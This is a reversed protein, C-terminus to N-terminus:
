AVLKEVIILSFLVAMVLSATVKRLFVPQFPSLSGVKKVRLGTEFLSLGLLAPVCIFVSGAGLWAFLIFGAVSLTWLLFQLGGSIKNRSAIESQWLQKLEKPIGQSIFHLVLYGILFCPLAVFAAGVVIGVSIDFWDAFIAGAKAGNCLYFSTILLRMVFLSFTVALMLLGVKVGEWKELFFSWMFALLTIVGIGFLLWYGTPGAIDSFLMGVSSQPYQQYRHSVDVCDAYVSIPPLLSSLVIPALFWKLIKKSINRTVSVELSCDFWFFSPAVRVM